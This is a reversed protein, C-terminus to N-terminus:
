RSFVFIVYSLGDKGQPPYSFSLIYLGVLNQITFAKIQLYSPLSFSHWPSKKVEKIRRVTRQFVSTDDAEEVLARAYTAIAKIKLVM